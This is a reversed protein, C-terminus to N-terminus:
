RVNPAEPPSGDPDPWRYSVYYYGDRELQGSPPSREATDPIGADRRIVNIESAGVEVDPRRVTLWITGKEIRCVLEAGHSLRLNHNGPNRRARIFWAALILALKTPPPPIFSEQM